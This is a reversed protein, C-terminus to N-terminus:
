GQYQHDSLPKDRPLWVQRQHHVNAMVTYDFTLTYDGAINDLAITDYAFVWCGNPSYHATVGDDDSIFLGYHGNRDNNGPAGFYWKNRLSNYIGTTATPNLTWRNRAAESEFDCSYRRVANAPMAVALVAMLMIPVIRKM